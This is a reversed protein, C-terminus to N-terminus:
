NLSTEMADWFARSPIATKGVIIIGTSTRRGVLFGQLYWVSPNLLLVLEKEAAKPPENRRLLALLNGFPSAVIRLSASQLIIDATRISTGCLMCVLYRQLEQTFVQEPVDKVSDFSIAGASSLELADMRGPPLYQAAAAPGFQHVLYLQVLGQPTRMGERTVGTCPGTPSVLAMHKVVDVTHKCLKLLSPLSPLSLELNEVEVQSSVLTLRVQGAPPEPEDRRWLVCCDYAEGVNAPEPFVWSAMSDRSSKPGTMLGRPVKAVIEFRERVPAQALADELLQPFKMKRAGPPVVYGEIDPFIALVYDRPKTTTRGSRWAELIPSYTPPPGPIGGYKAIDVRHRDHVNNPRENVIYFTPRFRM